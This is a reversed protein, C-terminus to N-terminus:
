GRSINKEQLSMKVTKIEFPAVEMESLSLEEDNRELLNVEATRSVPKFFKVETKANDGATEFFRLIVDDDDESKKLVTAVVSDGPIECFSKRAPLTKKSVPDSISKAIL